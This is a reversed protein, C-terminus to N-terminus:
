FRITQTVNILVYLAALILLLLAGIAVIRRVDRRVYAYEDAARVSLPARGRAPALEAAPQRGRDRTRRAAQEAAREEAVIAAELEAARAEEAATLSGTPRAPVTTETPSATAPRGGGSGSRGERRLPPRQGPRRSGRHRKAM